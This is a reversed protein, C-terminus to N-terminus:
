LEKMVCLRIFLETVSSPNSVTDTGPYLWVQLKQPNPQFLLQQLWTLKQSNTLWCSPWSAPHTWATPSSFMKVIVETLPVQNITFSTQWSEVLLKNLLSLHVFSFIGLSRFGHFWKLVPFLKILYYQLVLFNASLYTFFWSWEFNSHFLISIVAM